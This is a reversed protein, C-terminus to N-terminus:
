VDDIDAGPYDEVHVGTANTCGEPPCRTPGRFEADCGRGSCLESCFKDTVKDALYDPLYNVGTIKDGGKAERELAKTRIYCPTPLTVDSLPRSQPQAQLVAMNFFCSNVPDFGDQDRIVINLPRSSPGTDEGHYVGTTSQCHVSGRYLRELENGPFLERIKQSAPISYRSPNDVTFGQNGTGLRHLSYCHGEIWRSTPNRDNNKCEPERLSDKLIYHPGRRATLANLVLGARMNIGLYESYKDFDRSTPLTLFRQDSLYSAVSSTFKKRAGPLGWGANEPFWTPNWSTLNGAFYFDDLYQRMKVVTNDLFMEMSEKMSEKYHEKRKDRDEAEKLHEQATDFVLNMINVFNSSADVARSTPVLQLGFSIFGFVQSVIKLTKKLGLSDEDMDAVTGAISDIERLIGSKNFFTMQM